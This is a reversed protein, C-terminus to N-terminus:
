SLSGSHSSTLPTLACPLLSTVFPKSPSKCQRPKFLLVQLIEFFSRWMSRNLAERQMEKDSVWCLMEISLQAEARGTAPFSIPQSLSPSLWDQQLLPFFLPHTSSDSSKDSHGDLGISGKTQWYCHNCVPGELMLYSLTTVEELERDPVLPIVFFVVTSELFFKKSKRRYYM